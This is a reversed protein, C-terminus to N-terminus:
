RSNVPSSFLFLCDAFVQNLIDWSQKRDNHMYSLKAKYEELNSIIYADLESFREGKWSETVQQKKRLLLDVVARKDEALVEAALESFRVPPPCGREEIWRCALIPRLVYFYKKYSVVEDQFYVSFNKRATAYYHYMCSKCSFYNKAAERIREWVLTTHYVIPSGIWEYIMANSKYIHKLTKSLDWGNIDLTENLEWDIFDKKEELHLYYEMPRIYVFRVDYDSDPSAFGWARSGSEVAHLIKVQEKKEIDAIRGKIEAWREENEKMGEVRM